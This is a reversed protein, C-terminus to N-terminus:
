YRAEGIATLIAEVEHGKDDFEGHRKSETTGQGTPFTVPAAQFDKRIGLVPVRRNADELYDAVYTLLSSPYVTIGDANEAAPDLM